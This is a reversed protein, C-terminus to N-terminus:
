IDLLPQAVISFTKVGCFSILSTLIIADVFFYKASAALSTIFFQSQDSHGFFMM